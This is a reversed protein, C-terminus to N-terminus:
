PLPAHRRARGALAPDVAAETDLTAPGRRLRGGVAVSTRLGGRGRLAPLAGDAIVSDMWACPHCPRHGVFAVPGDGSDLSFPQGVLANLDMGRVVINRRLVAPDPPDIGLVAAVAEIAEAAVFSVQANYHAPVGFFRDGVIGRGAVLEVTEADVTAVEAGGDRPRGFYAHAPSVYLHEIVVSWRAM